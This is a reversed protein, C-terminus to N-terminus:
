AGCSPPCNCGADPKSRKWMTLRMGVGDRRAYEAFDMVERIIHVGLGGPKVDALDRGKIESPEVQRAEDEIVVKLGPGDGEDAMPTFTVWIPGDTRRGYGHKMVNTIAEDVALAVQSGPVEGFGLTRTLEAVFERVACLYRPNSVLEVRLDPRGSPGANDSTEAM